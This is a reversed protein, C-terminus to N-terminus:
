GCLYLDSNRQGDFFDLRQLRVFKGCGLITDIEPVLELNVKKYNSITREKDSGM